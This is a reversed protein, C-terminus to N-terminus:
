TEILVPLVMPQRGTKQYILDEMKGQIYKRFSQNDESSRWSEEFARKANDEIESILRKSKKLYVFGRSIVTPRSLLRKKGSDILYIIVM